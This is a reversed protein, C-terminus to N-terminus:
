LVIELFCYDEGLLLVLRLQYKEGNCSPVFVFRNSIRVLCILGPFSSPLTMERSVAM